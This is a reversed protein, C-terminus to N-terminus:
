SEAMRAANSRWARAARVPASYRNGKPAARAEEEFHIEGLGFINGTQPAADFAVEAVALDGPLHLAAHLFHLGLQPRNISAVGGHTSSGSCRYGVPLGRCYTWVSQVRRQYRRRDQRRNKILLLSGWSGRHAVSCCSGAAFVLHVTDPWGPLLWTLWM